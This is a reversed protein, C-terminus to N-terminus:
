EEEETPLDKVKPMDMVSMPDLESGIEDCQILPVAIWFCHSELLPRVPAWTSTVGGCNFQPLDYGLTRSAGGRNGSNKFDRAITQLDYDCSFLPTGKKLSILKRDNVFRYFESQLPDPHLDETHTNIFEGQNVLDVNAGHHFLFCGRTVMDPQRVAFGQKGM